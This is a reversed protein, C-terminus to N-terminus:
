YETKMKYLQRSSPQPSILFAHIPDIDVRNTLVLAWVQRKYKYKM